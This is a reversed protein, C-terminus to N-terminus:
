HLGRHVEKPLIATPSPPASVDTLLLFDCASLCATLILSNEAWTLFFEGQPVLFHPIIEAKLLGQVWWAFVVVITSKIIEM